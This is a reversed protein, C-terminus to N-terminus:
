KLDKSTSLGLVRNLNQSIALSISKFAFYVGQPKDLKVGLVDDCVIFSDAGSDLLAFNEKTYTDTQFASPMSGNDDPVIKVQFKVYVHPHNSESLATAMSVVIYPDQNSTSLQNIEDRLSELVSPRSRFTYPDSEPIPPPTISRMPTIHDELTLIFSLCMMGSTRAMISAIAIQHMASRSEEVTTAPATVTSMTERPLAVATTPTVRTPTPTKHVPAYTHLLKKPSTKKPYHEILVSLFAKGVTELFWRTDDDHETASNRPIVIEEFEISEFLNLLQGKSIHIADDGPIPTAFRPPPTKFPNM